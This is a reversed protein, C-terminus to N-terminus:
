PEHSPGNSAIAALTGTITDGFNVQLERMERSISPITFSSKTVAILFIYM